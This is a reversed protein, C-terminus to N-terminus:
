SHQKHLGMSLNYGNDRATEAVPRVVPWDSLEQEFLDSETMHMQETRSVFGELVIGYQLFVDNEKHLAAALLPVHCNGCRCVVTKGVTRLMDVRKLVNNDWSVSLTKDM